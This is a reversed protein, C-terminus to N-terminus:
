HECPTAGDLQYLLCQAISDILQWGQNNPDIYTIYTPNAWGLSSVTPTWIDPNFVIGPYMAELGTNPDAEAQNYADVFPRTDDYQAPPLLTMVSFAPTNTVIFTVNPCGNQACWGQISNIFNTLCQMFVPAPTNTKQGTPGHWEANTTGLQIWVVTPLHPLHNLISPLYLTIDECTNSDFSYNMWNGAPINPFDAAQHPVQMRVFSHGIDLIYGPQQANVSTIAFGVLLGALLSRM